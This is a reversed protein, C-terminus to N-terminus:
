KHVSGRRRVFVRLKQSIVSSLKNVAECTELLGVTGNFSVFLLNVLRVASMPIQEFVCSLGFIVFNILALGESCQLTKVTRCNTHMSTIAVYIFAALQIAVILPIAIQYRTRLCVLLLLFLYNKSIAVFSTYCSNSKQPPTKLLLFDYRRVYEGPDLCGAQAIYRRIVALAHFLTVVVAAFFTLLNFALLLNNGRINPLELLAVIHQMFNDTGLSVYYVMFFLKVKRMVANYQRALKKEEGRKGFLCREVTYLLLLFNVVYLTNHPGSACDLRSRPFMRRMAVCYTDRVRTDCPVVLAMQLDIDLPLLASLYAPVNSNDVFQLMDFLVLGEVSFLLIAFLKQMSLASLLALISFIQAPKEAFSRTAPILTQTGRRGLDLQMTQVTGNQYGILFHNGVSLTLQCDSPNFAIANIVRVFQHQSRLGLRGRTQQCTSSQVRM